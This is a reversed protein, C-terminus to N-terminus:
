LGYRERLFSTFESGDVYDGAEYAREGEAVVCALRAQALEERMLDYDEVRMVVFKGNGNKTVTVPEASEEVIRAFAATDKMDRIPVCVSM